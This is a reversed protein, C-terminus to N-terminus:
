SLSKIALIAQNRLTKLLGLQNDSISICKSQTSDIYIIAIPSHKIVIPFVVFSKSGIKNHFWAPIKDKIKSDLTDEIKIDVNNKFAIHFVDPEYALPIQFSKILKELEDGHGFRAKISNSAKDRLGLLVRSGPLARYITELIMQMIQNISVDDGTLTNTIDQIGDSLAKESSQTAQESTDEELVQMSDDDNLESGTHQNISSSENVTDAKLQQYFTSKNLSFNILKAFSTLEAQSTEILQDIKRNDIDLSKDYQATIKQIAEDQKEKPLKLAQSLSNSFNAIVRLKDTSKEPKKNLLIGDVPKMSNIIQEPFGWEKAVAMGLTQYSTGLVKLAATNEEQNNQEIQRDIAQSEAMM